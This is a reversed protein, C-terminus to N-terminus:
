APNKQTKQEVYRALEGLVTGLDRQLRDFGATKECKKEDMYVGRKIEVQVSHKGEVPAGHKQVIYGGQYPTNILVSYGLRDFQAAVWETFEPSATTGNRDSVVIDPRPAGNDVNMANGVSKMSHCDIHWVQGFRVHASDILERLMEHYPFYYQDLRRKVESVSLKGDYMPVSPLANLRILGMGRLCAASPSLSAPWPEDLMSQDIDDPARNADIYARSFNAALLAGGVSPAAQWLEEVYADWTTKLAEVPAVIGSNAPFELGSHPSDIIIPLSADSNPRVLSFAQNILKNM